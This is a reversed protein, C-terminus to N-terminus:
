MGRHKSPPRWFQWWRRPPRRKAEELMNRYSEMWAIFCVRLRDDRYWDLSSKISGAKDAKFVHPEGEEHLDLYYFSGAGDNGVVFYHDPWNQQGFFGERRVEENAEILVTADTIFVDWDVPPLSDALSMCEHYARPLRVGLRTEVTALEETKM